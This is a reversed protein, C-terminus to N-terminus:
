KIECLIIHNVLGYEKLSSVLFLGLPSGNAPVRKSSHALHISLDTTITLHSFARISQETEESEVEEILKRVKSILLDQYGGTSRLEIIELWM